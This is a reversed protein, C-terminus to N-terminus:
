PKLRDARGFLGLTAGMAAGVFARALEGKRSSRWSGSEVGLLNTRIIREFVETPISEFEGYAMVGANNVWTDIRGFREVALDALREVHEADGVDLAMVAVRDSGLEGQMRELEAGDRAALIVRSGLRAFERASARGIGSTAGTLVVVM